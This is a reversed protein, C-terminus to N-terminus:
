RENMALPKECLVAKGSKLCLLTNACHYPHPTAIYVADVGPDAALAEYAAYSRGVGHTRAFEQAKSGTRSAVAVLSAGDVVGIAEAMRAAINGTGLIGWRIHDEM